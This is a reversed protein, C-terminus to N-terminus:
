NEIGGVSYSNFALFLRHEPTREVTLWTIKSAIDHRFGQSSLLHHSENAFSNGVEQPVGMDGPIPTRLGPDYDLVKIMREIAVSNDPATLLRRSQLDVLRDTLIQQEVQKNTFTAMKMSYISYMAYNFAISCLAIALCAGGVMIWRRHQIQRNRDFIEARTYAPSSPLRLDRLDVRIRPAEDLNYDMMESIFNDLYESSSIISKPDYLDEDANLRIYLGRDNGMPYVICQNGLPVKDNAFLLQWLGYVPTGPFADRLRILEGEDIFIPPRGNDSEPEVITLVEHERTNRLSQVGIVDRFIIVERGDIEVPVGLPIDPQM